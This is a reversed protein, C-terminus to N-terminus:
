KIDASTLTILKFAAVKGNSDLEYVAIYKKSTADAGTIDAASTLATTGTVADGVNPTAVSTSSIAYVLSDGSTNATATIETAGTASGVGASITTIAPAATNKNTVTVASSTITAIANGTADQLPNSTPKTYAVTVTDGGPIENALTLVVTKGSITVTSVKVATTGDKVTFASAAPATTNLTSDTTITLTSGTVAASLVSPAKITAANLTIRKTSVIVGTTKNIEYIDIFKNTTPDVGTIDTNAALVTAVSSIVGKTLTVGSFVNGKYEAKPATTGNAVVKYVLEDNTADAPTGIATFQTSGETSGAAATFTGSLAPATTTSAVVAQTLTGATYGNANVTITYSQATGLVGAKFTIKGGSVSYDSTTASSAALTEVANGKSDKLNLHVTTGSADTVTVSTINSTLNSTMTAAGADAYTVVTSTAVTATTSATLTMTRDAITNSDDEYTNGSPDSVTIAINGGGVPYSPLTITYANAKAVVPAALLKYVAPTTVDGSTADTVAPTYAYATVTCGTNATGTITKSDSSVKSTTYGLKSSNTGWTTEQLDSMPGTMVGAVVKVTSSINEDAAKDSDLVVTYTGPALYFKYEGLTNTTTKWTTGTSSIAQVTLGGSVVAGTSDVAVGGLVGDKDTTKIISTADDWLASVATAKSLNSVTGKVKESMTGTTNSLTIYYDGTAPLNTVKYVGATSTDYKATSTIDSNTSVDWVHPALNSVADKATDNNTVTVDIEGTAAATTSDAFAMTAPMVSMGIVLSTAVLFKVKKGM